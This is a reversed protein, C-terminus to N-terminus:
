IAAASAADGLEPFGRVSVRRGSCAQGRAGRAGAPLAPGSLCTHGPAPSAWALGRHQGGRWGVWPMSGGLPVITSCPLLLLVQGPLSFLGRRLWFSPTAPARGAQPQSVPETWGQTSRSPEMDMCPRTFVALLTGLDRKRSRGGWGLVGLGWPKGRDGTKWTLCKAKGM